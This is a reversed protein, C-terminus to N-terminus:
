AATEPPDRYGGAGTADGSAGAPPAPPTQLRKIKGEDGTIVRLLSQSAPWLDTAIHSFCAKSGAIGEFSGGRKGGAVDAAVVPRDFGEDGDPTQGVGLGQKLDDKLQQVVECADKSERDHYPLHAPM